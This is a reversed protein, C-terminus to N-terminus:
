TDPIPPWAAGDPQRPVYRYGSRDTVWGLQGAATMRVSMKRGGPTEYQRFPAHKALNRIGDVILSQDPAPLVGKWIAVGSLDIQNKSM